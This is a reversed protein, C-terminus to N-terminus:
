YGLEPRWGLPAPKASRPDEEDCRYCKHLQWGARLPDGQQRVADNIARLVAPNSRQSWEPHLWVDEWRGLARLRPWWEGIAEPTDIILKLEHSAALVEPLAPRARKPSVTIWDFRGRLPFAGSTELHVRLGARHLALTLQNLDHIAPEGGTIIVRPAGSAVAQRVLDDEPVRAVKEPIYDPHWTGAADCWPCHLPCGYTRIFFAKRGVHCGEGQWSCFVEHIPLTM